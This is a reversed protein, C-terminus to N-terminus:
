AMNALVSICVASTDLAQVCVAYARMANMLKKTGLVAKCTLPQMALWPTM